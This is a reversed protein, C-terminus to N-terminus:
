EVTITEGNFMAIDGKRMKKRKQLEVEGNVEVMGEQIVLHAEGGSGVLRVIKLLKDLPIFEQDEGLSFTHDAM